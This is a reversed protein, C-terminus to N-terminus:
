GRLGRARHGERHGGHGQGPQQGRSGGAGWALQAATTPLAQRSLPATVQPWVALVARVLNATTRAQSPSVVSPGAGTHAEESDGWKGRCHVTPQRGPRAPAAAAAGTPRAEGELAPFQQPRGQRPAAARGVPEAALGAEHLGAWTVLARAEEPVGPPCPVGAKTEVGLGVRPPHGQGGPSM